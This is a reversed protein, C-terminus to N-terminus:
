TMMMVERLSRLMPGWTMMQLLVLLCLGMWNEPATISNLADHSASSGFLSCQSSMNLIPLHIFCISVETSVKLIRFAVRAFALLDSVQFIREMELFLHSM